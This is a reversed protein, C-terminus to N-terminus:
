GSGRRSGCGPRQDHPIEAWRPAACSACTVTIHARRPKRRCLFVSVPRPAIRTELMSAWLDGSDEVARVALDTASEIPEKINPKRTAMKPTWRTM